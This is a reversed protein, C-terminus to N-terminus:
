YSKLVALDADLKHGTATATEQIVEILATGEAEKMHAKMDGDKYANILRIRWPDIGLKDAIIDMQSEVAFDMMTVGFGRMASSPQRNTYVCHVDGYVNPITYPGPIHAAGKTVGYNVLRNYAGCNAYAVMKRAVIRGDNMVGDKIYIRWGARTSSVQMEEQRSYFYKVPRGTAQAGLIALFETVGDVKGGFGGGSVGGLFRLQHPPIDTIYSALALIFFLGQTNTYVNYRGDPTPQCITGTVEMPVHEVPGTDYREEIIRDAQSFGEEVDGFRIRRCHHGEYPFYNTGHVSIVPADKKLAEEVDFVATLRKYKVKVKSAAEAAARPTEAIIAVIPEGKFRVKGEALIPEDKPDVGILQMPTYLNNPVDKATLLKIFGSVKEARSTDISVIDAHHETSRVMKMHLMGEFSIDETLQLRGSVQSAVGVRQTSEGVAHFDTPTNEPFSIHKDKYM